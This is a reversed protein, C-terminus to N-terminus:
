EVTQNESANLQDEIFSQLNNRLASLQHIGGIMYQYDPMEDKSPTWGEEHSTQDDLNDIGKDIMKIIELVTATDM